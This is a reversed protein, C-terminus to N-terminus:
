PTTALAFLVAFAGATLGAVIAVLMVGVFAISVAAACGLARIVIVHAPPLDVLRRM